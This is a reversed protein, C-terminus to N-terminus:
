EVPADCAATFAQFVSLVNSYKESAKKFMDSNQGYVKIAYGVAPSCALMADMETGPEIYVGFESMAAARLNRAEIRKSNIKARTDVLVKWANLVSEYTAWKAKYEDSDPKFEECTKNVDKRLMNLSSELQGYPIFYETSGWLAMALEDSIKKEAAALKKAAKTSKKSSM